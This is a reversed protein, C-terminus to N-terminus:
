GWQTEQTSSFVALHGVSAGVNQSPEAPGVAPLTVIAKAQGQLFFCALLLFIGALKILTLGPAREALRRSNFCDCRNTRYLDPNNADTENNNMHNQGTNKIPQYSSLRRRGEYHKVPGM